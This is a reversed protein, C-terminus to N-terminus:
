HNEWEDLEQRIYELTLLKEKVQEVNLITTNNSNFEEVTTLTLNGESFYKEYNLDRKDMPVCYFNGMDVAHVAEEQTLLTEYM